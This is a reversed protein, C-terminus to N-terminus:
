GQGVRVFRVMVFQIGVLEFDFTEIDHRNCFLGLTCFIDFFLNDKLVNCFYEEEM